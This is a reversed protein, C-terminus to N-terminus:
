LGISEIQVGINKNCDEYHLFEVLGDRAFVLGIYYRLQLFGFAIRCGFVFLHGGFASVM